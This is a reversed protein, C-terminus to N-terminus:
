SAKGSPGRGSRPTSASGGGATEKQREQEVRRLADKFFDVELAKDALAEKLRQIEAEPGVPGLGLNARPPEPGGEFQRKWTYLLKRQVGLERALAQINGCTKMREVAQRKFELSHRRWKAM